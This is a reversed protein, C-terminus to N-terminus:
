RTSTLPKALFAAWDVLVAELLSLCLYWLHPLAFYRCRDEHVKFQFTKVWVDLETFSLLNKSFSKRSHQNTTVGSRVLLFHVFAAVGLGATLLEM